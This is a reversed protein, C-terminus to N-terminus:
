STLDYRLVLLAYDDERTQSGAFDQVAGVLSFLVDGATVPGASLAADLLREVGFEKGQEDCCEVLGDSYAVLTDGPMLTVRAAAFPADPIAGLVPGGEQLRAIAAGSRLLNPGPHGANCYLLEGNGRDLRALFMTVLPSVPRLGCLERNICAMTEAADDLDSCRRLLGIVQTFWMAAYLGKGAIDGIALWVFPGAEAVTLFDGSVHRVPFIEAAIEFRGRRLLRPGSLRRQMQAAEYLETHIEALGLRLDQVQKELRAARQRDDGLQTRGGPVACVAHHRLWSQTAGM